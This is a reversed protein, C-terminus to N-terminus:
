NYLKAVTTWDVNWNTIIWDIHCQGLVEISSFLGKHYWEYSFVTLHVVKSCLSNEDFHLLSFNDDTDTSSIHLNLLEKLDVSRNLQLLRFVSLTINMWTCGFYLALKQVILKIL